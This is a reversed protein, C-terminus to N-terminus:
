DICICVRDNNCLLANRYLTWQCSLPQGPFWSDCAETLGEEPWMLVVLCVSITWSWRSALIDTQAPSHVRSEPNTWFSPSEMRCSMLIHKHGQAAETVPTVHSPLSLLAQTRALGAWDFPPDRHRAELSSFLQIVQLFLFLDWLHCGYGLAKFLVFTTCPGRCIAAWRGTCADSLMWPKPNLNATMAKVTTQPSNNSQFCNLYQRGRHPEAALFLNIFLLLKPHTIGVYGEESCYLHYPQEKPFCCAMLAIENDGM